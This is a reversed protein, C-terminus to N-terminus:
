KKRRPKKVKWVDDKFSFVKVGKVNRLSRMTLSRRQSHNRKRKKPVRKKRRVVKSPKALPIPAVKIPVKKTVRPKKRHITWGNTYEIGHEKRLRVLEKRPVMKLRLESAMDELYKRQQLQAETAKNRMLAIRARQYAGSEKLERTTPTIAPLNGTIDELEIRRARQIIEAKTPLKRM